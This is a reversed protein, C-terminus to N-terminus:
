TKNAVTTVDVEKRSGFLPTLQNEINQYWKSDPEAPGVDAGLDSLM